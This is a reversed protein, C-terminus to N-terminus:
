DIVVKTIQIFNLVLIYVCDLLCFQQLLL